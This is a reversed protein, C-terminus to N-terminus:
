SGVDSGLLFSLSLDVGVYAGEPGKVLLNGVLVDDCSSGLDGDLAAQTLGSPLLWVDTYLPLAFSEISTTSPPSGDDQPVSACRVIWVHFEATRLSACRQSVLIPSAFNPAGRYVQELGVALLECDFAIEGGDSVYQRAPLGVGADAYIAVVTDRIREAITFVHDVAAAM